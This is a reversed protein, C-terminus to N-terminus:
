LVDKPSVRPEQLTDHIKVPCLPIHMPPLVQLTLMQSLFLVYVDVSNSQEMLFFFFAYEAKTQTGRSTEFFVCNQQIQQFGSTKM